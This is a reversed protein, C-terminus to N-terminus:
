TKGDSLLLLNAGALQLLVKKEPSRPFNRRIQPEIMTTKPAGAVWILFCVNKNTQM